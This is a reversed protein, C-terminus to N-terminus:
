PGPRLPVRTGITPNRPEVIRSYSVALTTAEDANALAAPTTACPLTNPFIARSTANVQRRRCISKAQSPLREDELHSPRKRLADANMALVECSYEFSFSTTSDLCDSVKRNSARPIGSRSSATKIYTACCDELLVALVLRTEGDM